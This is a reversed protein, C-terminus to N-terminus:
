GGAVSIYHRNSQSAYLWLGARCRSGINNPTWLRWHVIFFPLNSLASDIIISDDCVLHPLGTSRLIGPNTLTM